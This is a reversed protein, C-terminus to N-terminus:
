GKLSLLPVFDGVLRQVRKMSDRLFVLLGLPPEEKSIIDENIAVEGFLLMPQDSEPSPSDVLLECGEYLPFGCGGSVPQLTDAFAQKVGKLSSSM